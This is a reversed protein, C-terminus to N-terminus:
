QNSRHTLKENALRQSWRNIKVKKGGKNRKYQGILNSMSINYEDDDSAVLCSNAHNIGALRLKRESVEKVINLKIGKGKLEDSFNNQEKSTILVIKKGKEAADNAFRRAMRSQGIVIIKERNRYFFYHEFFLKIWPYLYYFLLLGIGINIYMLFHMHTFGTDLSLQIFNM